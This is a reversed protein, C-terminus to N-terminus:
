RRLQSPPESQTHWGRIRQSLDHELTSPPPASDPIVTYHKGRPTIWDIGFLTREVKFGGVHKARHHRRCLLCLNSISTERSRAWDRIHDVDCAMAPRRCGPARCTRDRATVFAKAQATPRYGARDTTPMPPRRRLPGEAVTEGNDDTVTFRWRASTAMQTAAERAIDAIIPGFGDIEGPRDNLCALTTLDIHLNVVGKRAAPIAAGSQAPDVGALLDAFVDTRIQDITREDGTSKTAKAIANVHNYAAAAKDKPMAIGSLAATGNSYETHEVWRSEVAKRHRKRVADPDLRLLLRRIKERIQATTCWEVDKLLQAVVLQAHEDTADDLEVAIIKAKTLDLRGARMAEWVAPTRDVTSLAVAIGTQAAHDTWALAFALETCTYPDQKLNRVPKGVGPARESYALERMAHLLQAQEYSIQRNRADVLDVLQAGHLRTPDVMALLASLQPGPPTDAIRRVLETVGSM